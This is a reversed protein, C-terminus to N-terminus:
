YIMPSTTVLLNIALTSMATQMHIDDYLVEQLTQNVSCLSVANHVQMITMM